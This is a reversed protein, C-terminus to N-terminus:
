WGQHSVLLVVHATKDSQMWEDLSQDDILFIWLEKM